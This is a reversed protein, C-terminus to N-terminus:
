NSVPICRPALESFEKEFMHLMLPTSDENSLLEETESKPGNM